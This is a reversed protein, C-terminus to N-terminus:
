IEAWPSCCKCRFVCWWNSCGDCGNQSKPHYIDHGNGCKTKHYIRDGRAMIVYLGNNDVAISKVQIVEDEDILLLSNGDILLNESSVYLKVLENEESQSDSAHCAAAMFFICLTFIKFLIKM